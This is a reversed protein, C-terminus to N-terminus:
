RTFAYVTCIIHSIRGADALTFNGSGLLSLQQGPGKSLDKSWVFVHFSNIPNKYVAFVLCSMLLSKKRFNFAAGWYAFYTPSVHDKM